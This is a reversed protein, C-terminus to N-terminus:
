NWTDIKVDDPSPQGTGTELYSRLSLMFVAWKMSCHAMHENSERWNRHGLIIITQGDQESLEFTIDTGVWDDPGGVCHWHVRTNPLCEQVQMVMTAMFDGTKKYFSFDLQGGEDANGQVHTTWWHALDNLSTLAQYVNAIPRKIGIRHIIDAM